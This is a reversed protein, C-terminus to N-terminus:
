LLSKPHLCNITFYYHSCRSSYYTNRSYNYAKKAIFYYYIIMFNYTMCYKQQISIYYLISQPEFNLLVYM